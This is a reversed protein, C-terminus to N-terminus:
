LVNRIDLSDKQVHQTASCYRQAKLSEASDLLLFLAARPLLPARSSPDGDDCTSKLMNCYPMDKDSIKGLTVHRIQSFM